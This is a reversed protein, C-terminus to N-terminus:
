KLLATIGKLLKIRDVSRENGRITVAEAGIMNAVFNMIEPPVNQYAMASTLALIADGAGVRDVVEMAFAPCEHFGAGRRYLLSGNKGRTVMISPCNMRKSLNLTLNKLDESKNRQDLRLEGEHICIHDAHAYKSIAHFGINAANIQTNIAVFPVDRELIRVAKHSILGHGYDAVGGSRM